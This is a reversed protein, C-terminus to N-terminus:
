IFTVVEDFKQKKNKYDISNWLNFNFWFSEKFMKVCFLEENSFIILYDKYYYFKDFQLNELYQYIEKQTNNYDNYSDECKISEKLLNTAKFDYYTNKELKFNRMGMSFLFLGKSGRKNYEKNRDSKDYKIKQIFNIYAPSSIGDEFTYFHPFIISNYNMPIDQILDLKYSTTWDKNIVDQFKKNTCLYIKMLTKFASKIDRSILNEDNDLHHSIVNDVINQDFQIAENDPIVHYFRLRVSKSASCRLFAM